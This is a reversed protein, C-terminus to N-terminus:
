PRPLWLRWAFCALTGVTLMTRLKFYGDISDLTRDRWVDAVLLLVFVGSLGYLALTFPLTMSVWTAVLLLSAIIIGTMGEDGQVAPLAFGWFTGSMFSAILAAYMLWLHDLQAPARDPVLTILLPGAAFPVLGAFGLLMIWLPLRM